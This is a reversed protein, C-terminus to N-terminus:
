AGTKFAYIQTFSSSNSDPNQGEWTLTIKGKASVSVTDGSAPSLLTAPFPTYCIGGLVLPWM